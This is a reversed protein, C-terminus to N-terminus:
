SLFDNHITLLKNSLALPNELTLKRAEEDQSYYKWLAAKVDMFPCLVSTIDAYKIVSRLESKINEAGNEAAQNDM